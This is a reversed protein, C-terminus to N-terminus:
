NEPSSEDREVIVSKNREFQLKRRAEVMMKGHAVREEKTRRSQTVKGGVKGGRKGLERYWEKITMGKPNPMDSM